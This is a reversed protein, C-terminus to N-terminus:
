RNKRRDLIERAARRGSALAAHVTGWHGKTDTAEGAFWLTDEVAQGMVGPADLAGAPIYSYAGRSFEDSQWDHVHWSVIRGAVDAASQGLIRALSEISSRAISELPLGTHRLAAPGGSWATLLPARLPSQTWWTPFAEGEAHLFSLKALEAAPWESFLLTIRIVPGMVIRRAADLARAPEPVFRVVAPGHQAAQLVGVPLTVIVRSATFPGTGVGSTHRAQVEVHGRSWRIEKVITNLRVLAAGEKLGRWLTMPVGDYGTVIRQITDGDIEEEAKQQKGLAMASIRNRDAANFGEVYGTARLKVEDRVDM